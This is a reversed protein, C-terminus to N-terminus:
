EYDDENNQIDDEGRSANIIFGCAMLTVAVSSGGASFFPLPIGTTPVSGSVVAINLLAQLVISNVLGCVLLKKFITTQKLATKYGRWAFFVFLLVFLLVGIFGAEEAYSAFVFDSQVEPVSRIKRIGQGIGKGWFGGSAITSISANVQYTAGLPNVLDPRLWSVIRLLRHEETFVLLFSIPILMITASIFYSMRVGALYFLTLANMAVFLATSFNNQKQILVFFLATIVTPPLVGSVFSNLYEKKKDFIHALYIPLILKVLESPQFTWKGFKIWRQADNLKAGIGPVFTLLCLAIAALVVPMIMMRLTKMKLNAIVILFVLGFGALMSQRAVFHWKNGNYFLEAFSYSASYLTVLGAGTLLLVSTILLHDFHTKHGPEDPTFNSM